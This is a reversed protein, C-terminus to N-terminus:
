NCQDESSLLSEKYLGGINYNTKGGTIGVEEIIQTSLDVYAIEHDKKRIFLHGMKGFGLPPWQISPSPGYTYLKIWSESVGLEGLISIHFVVDDHHNSLLAISGNLVTLCLLDAYPAYPQEGVPTTFFVERSLDFSLVTMARRHNICESVLWHCAGDLYVEHGSFARSYFYGWHSLDNDMDIMRWSNSKLSYIEFFSTTLRSSRASVFSVYQVVKFDHRLQDYGFGHFIPELSLTDFSPHKPTLETPSSPIGMFEDTLPNWLVYQPTKMALYHQGLCFFGNVSTSGLICTYKGSRQLPSPLNLKLRNEVLHFESHIFGHDLRHSTLIFSHYDDYSGHRSIFHERYMTMFDTNEFLVSWSKRVCGFRKLSKIPLKSLISFAFKDPISNRSVKSKSSPPIYNKSVKAVSKSESSESGFSGFIFKSEPSKSESSPSGFSGFIFKSESSKSESSGSGFSLKRLKSESSKSESSGSGFSSKSSRFSLTSESSKSESSQSGFSLKSNRFSLKSESSKFESSRFNLKSKSSKTTSSRFNLKSESSQSGFSGFCLKSESSKSESSESDFSGFSFKSESSNSESSNSESSNYLQIYNILLPGPHSVTPDMYFSLPNKKRTDKEENVVFVDMKSESTPDPAPHYVHTTTYFSLPISNKSVKRIPGPHNVASDMYFSIPIYRRSVKQDDHSVTASDMM